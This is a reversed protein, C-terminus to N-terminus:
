NQQAQREVQFNYNYEDYLESSTKVKINPLTFESLRFMTRYRPNIEFPVDDIASSHTHRSNETPAIGKVGGGTKQVNNDVRSPLPYPLPPLPPQHHSNRRGNLPAVPTLKYGIHLSNVEGALVFGDPPKRSKSLVIIDSVAESAHDRPITKFCLFKKKMARQDSDRTVNMVVYGEPPAEKDAIIVLSQVLESNASKSYCIYRTIRRGFFGDKWLDADTDQDFTKDVVHYGQPRSQPDEVICVDTIPSDDPLAKLLDQMM